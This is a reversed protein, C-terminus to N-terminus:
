EVSMEPIFEIYDIVLGNLRVRGPEVYEFKIRTKGYDYISEVWCDFYNYPGEKIYRKGTVSPFIGKYLTYDYYDISKVLEDNVYINYVGGVEMYTRVVMLYRRPLLNEVDFELIAEGDYDSSYNLSMISDNSADSVYERTPLFTETSTFTVNEEEDWGYKTGIEDLLWEGEFILSGTLLTDPVTFHDYNYAYGNSCLAQDVPQYKLVVSDGLINKLKITDDRGPLFDTVELMNEFVGHELLYPILVDYQWELPIDSYDVMDLVVALDTLALNYDEELPFVVTATKNRFEESIPFFELEFMNIVESVTDYITNGDDDFYLPRSKEKDLIISDQSDVYSKLIPNNIAYYEYINPLPLGVEDMIFYKGNKYLPSEFRLPKGDFRSESGFREFFAYKEAYTQIKRKGQINGSQIYHLTIHYDIISPAMTGTDLLLSFADDDPIFLSFVDDTLFLTDYNYEKIYKTFLSLETDNQIAEWVNQDVTESQSNYHDDWYKECGFILLLLAIGLINILYKMKTILHIIFRVL